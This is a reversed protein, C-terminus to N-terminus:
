VSHLAIQSRPFKYSLILSNQKRPPPHAKHPSFSPPHHHHPINKEREIESELAGVGARIVGLLRFIVKCTTTRKRFIFGPCFNVAESTVLILFVTLVSNDARCTGPIMSSHKSIGTVVLPFFYTKDDGV